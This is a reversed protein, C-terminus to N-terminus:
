TVPTSWAVGPTAARAGWRCARRARTFRVGWDILDRVRAPGEAVLAEVARLHCLGAGALLTDQV